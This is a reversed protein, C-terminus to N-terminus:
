SRRYIDLWQLGGDRVATAFKVVFTIRDSHQAERYFASHCSRLVAGKSATGFCIHLLFTDGTLGLSYSVRGVMFSLGNGTTSAATVQM